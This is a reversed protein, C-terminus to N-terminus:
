VYNCIYYTSFSPLSFLSRSLFKDFPHSHKGTLIKPTTPKNIFNYKTVSFILQFCIPCINSKSIRQHSSLCNLILVIRRDLIKM